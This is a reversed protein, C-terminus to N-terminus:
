WMIELNHTQSLSGGPNSSLFIAFIHGAIAACHYLLQKMMGLNLTGDWSGGTGPTLSHRFIHGAMACPYFLQRMIGLNHTQAWSGGSNPSVFVVATTACQYLVQKMM